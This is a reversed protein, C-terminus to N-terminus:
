PGEQASIWDQLGIVQIRLQEADAAVAGYRESCQGLLQRATAAESICATAAAPAAAGPLDIGSAATRKNLQAITNLLGRNHADARTLATRLSEERQATEHAIREAQHQRAQENRRAEQEAALRATAAQAQAAKERQLRQNDAAQWEAHVRAAGQEQGKTILRQRWADLGAVLASILAAYLAVRLWTTM